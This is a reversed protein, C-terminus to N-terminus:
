ETFDFRSAQGEWDLIRLDLLQYVPNPLFQFDHRVGHPLQIVVKDNQGNLTNEVHEKASATL